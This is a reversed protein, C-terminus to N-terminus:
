IALRDIELLPYYRRIREMVVRVADSAIRDRSEGTRGGRLSLNALFLIIAGTKCGKINETLARQRHSKNIRNKPTDRISRRKHPKEKEPSPVFPKRREAQFWHYQFSYFFSTTERENIKVDEYTSLSM